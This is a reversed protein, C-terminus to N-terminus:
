AVTVTIVCAKQLMVFTYEAGATVQTTAVADGDADVVAISSFTKDVEIDAITVTVTEGSMVPSVPDITVTATGGVVESTVAYPLEPLSSVFEKRYASAKTSPNERARVTFEPTGWEQDSHEISGMVGTCYPCKYKLYAERGGEANFSQVYIESQFAVNANQDAVKPAEWGVIEEDTQILTGGQVLEVAELNFRADTFEVNLGVIVDNEQVRVLMRDGGRLDSTEGEAIAAELSAEQATDIWLRKPTDPMSGDSNLETILIGRCGRLYGRKLQTGM